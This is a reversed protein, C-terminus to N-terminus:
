KAELLKDIKGEIRDLQEQMIALQVVAAKPAHVALVTPIGGKKVAFNLIDAVKKLLGSISAANIGGAVLEGNKVKGEEKLRQMTPVKKETFQKKKEPQTKKENM